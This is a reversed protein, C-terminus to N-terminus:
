KKSSPEKTATNRVSEKRRTPFEGGFDPISKTFFPFPNKEWWKWISQLVSTGEPGHNNPIQEGSTM